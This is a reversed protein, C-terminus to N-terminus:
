QNLTALIQEKKYPKKFYDSILNQDLAAQIEENLDFGTLIFYNIEPRMKKAVRTFQIGDMNPMRLDCIVHTIDTDKELIELGEAANNATLLILDNRFTINFLMLNPKEDDIYLLKVSM